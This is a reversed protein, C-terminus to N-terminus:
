DETTMRLSRTVRVDDLLGPVVSPVEVEVRAGGDPGAGARVLSPRLWRPMAALAAPRAEGDRLDALAAARVAGNAANVTAFFVGVQLTTMGVLLVLPLWALLELAGVVGADGRSRRRRCRM